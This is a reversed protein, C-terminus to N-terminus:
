SPQQHLSAQQQMQNQLMVKDIAPVSFMCQGLNRNTCGIEEGASSVPAGIPNCLRPKSGRSSRSGDAVGLRWPIARSLKPQITAPHSSVVPAAVLVGDILYPDREAPIGTVRDAVWGALLSAHAQRGMFLTGSLWGSRERGTSRRFPIALCLADNKLV